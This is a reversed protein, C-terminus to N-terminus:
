GIHRSFFHIPSSVTSKTASLSLYELENKGLALIRGCMLGITGM